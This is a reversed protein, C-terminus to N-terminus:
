TPAQVWPTRGAARTTELADLDGVLTAAEHGDILADQLIHSYVLSVMLRAQAAARVRAQRLELSQRTTLWVTLYERLFESASSYFENAIRRVTANTAAEGWVQVIYGSSVESKQMGEAILAMVEPPSPLPETDLVGQIGAFVASFATRAVFAIIEDKSSFHRYIAGASLGAADIINTMSTSHIGRLSFQEVAARAIQDRRGQMHEASVKPM